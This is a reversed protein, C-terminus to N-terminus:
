SAIGGRAAPRPPPEAAAAALRAARFETPTAGTLEKFAKNFPGLSRYGVQYAVQAVGVHSRAPDSLVTRAEEIRYRHLFANFNRYGLRSNILQRVKHEHTELKRALAAITLGEERYAREEEMLGRLRAELAPDLVLVDGVSAPAPKLAEPRMRLCLFSVYFVLICTSVAHVGLGIGAASFPEGFATEAALEVLVYVGSLVLVVYRLRVRPVVLDSRAGMAVVLLAHVMLAVSVITPGITWQGPTPGGLLLPTALAGTGALWALYHFVMFAALGLGHRPRVRFDDDFHVKVLLWFAYPVAAGLPVLPHVLSAPVGRRAVVPLLLHAVIAGIFFVSALASPDRRHERLLVAAILTLQVVAVLHLVDPGNWM